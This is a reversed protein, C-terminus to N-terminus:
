AGRFQYKFVSGEHAAEDINAIALEGLAHLYEVHAGAETYALIRGYGKQQGFHADALEKVTVPESTNNRHGPFTEVPLLFVPTKDGTEFRVVELPCGKKDAKHNPIANMM